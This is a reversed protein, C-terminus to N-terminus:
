SKSIGFRLLLEVTSKIIRNMTGNFSYEDTTEDDYEYDSTVVGRGVLQSMGKKVFIIDGIKMENAFQWTVHAAKKYSLSPDIIERM